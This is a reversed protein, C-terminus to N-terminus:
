WDQFSEYVITESERDKVITVFERIVSKAEDILDKKIRYNTIITIMKLYFGAGLGDIIAEAM